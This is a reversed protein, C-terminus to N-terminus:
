RLLVAKRTLTAGGARLVYLYVGSALGSPAWRLAHEGRPLRGAALRAVERGSADYVRLDAAGDAPLSFRIVTSPNFPNPANQELTVAAPPMDAPTAADIPLTDRRVYRNHARIDLELWAISDPFSACRVLDIHGSEDATGRGYCTGNRYLCAVADPLGTEIALGVDNRGIRSPYSAVLSEPSDTWADLAPDGLLNLEYFCWRIAGPEWEGPLGLFPVTEDKSRQNADGLTTYGESFIADYFERMFHISPGNTSGEDFWGYRSNGLFAVAGHAMSVMQEAICDGIEFNLSPLRNDFSGDYCGTSCVVPFNSSVGDNTFSVDNVDNRNLRMVYGTNSHGSHGVWSTGANFEAIVNTSTWPGTARDYKRVISYGDPIGSTTFGNDTHAGVLLEVEDEGYTEPDDWLKEGLLLARKMEAAVPHDQYAATKAIVRAIEDVSDVSLRGVAIESYPDDEGPEGWNADGDANWTGDLAAFYLDAPLNTDTYLDSSHVEGYLGRYPVIKPDGSGGDWDGGLVVCTIGSAIYKDKIANRIKEAADVGGYAAEIEEVTMIRARMGRRMYFDKLPAFSSVYQDGTIILCEFTNDLDGISVPAGRYGSLAAPNEVLRSVRETTERDTRLLLLAERAEASAGTEISIDVTRYYGIEGSAPRFGVPSVCGTAIAHGRLYRTSFSPEPPYVWADIEYAAARYLFRERAGAPASAPVPAQAPRLKNSGPVLTWGSGTVTARIVAEGPPLLASVGRFPYSPEGPKGAQVTRPFAVLSFGGALPEVAPTGFTLTVHVTSSRAPAALTFTVAAACLLVRAFVRSARM